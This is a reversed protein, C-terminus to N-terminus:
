TCESHGMQRFPLSIIEEIMGWWEVGVSFGRREILNPIYEKASEPGRLADRMIRAYTPLSHAAVFSLYAQSICSANSLVTDLANWGDRSGLTDM